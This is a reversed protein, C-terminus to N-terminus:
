DAVQLCFQGTSFNLSFYFINALYWGLLMFFPHKTGDFSRAVVFDMIQASLVKPQCVQHHLSYWCWYFTKGKGIQWKSLCSSKNWFYNLIKLSTLKRFFCYGLFFSKGRESFSTIGM